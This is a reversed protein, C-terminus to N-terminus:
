EKLDDFELYLQKLLVIDVDKNSMKVQITNGSIGIPTNKPSFVATEIANVVGTKVQIIQEFDPKNSIQHVAFQEKPSGFLLFVASDKQAETAEFKKFYVVKSIKLTIGEAIKVGGREFHGRYLNAKFSGQKVIMDPLVFREPEITYTTYQPNKLQDAVFKQKATKDMTLEIIIQYNHPSRFMPLHSAYVNDTGFILMGHVSPKDKADTTHDHQANVKSFFLLFAVVCLCSTTKLSKM